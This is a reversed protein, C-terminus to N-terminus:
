CQSQDLSQRRFASPSNRGFLGYYACSLVVAMGMIGFMASYGLHRAFFGSILGGLGIGLDFACLFTASAAGRHDPAVIRMAMAQMAPTVMGFGLGYVLAALYFIYLKNAGALLLFAGLVCGSGLYLMPAEGRRDAIRPLLVRAVATAAALLFFFLGATHLSNQEMYLAAFSNLAGHPLLFLFMTLSAAFSQPYFLDRFAFRSRKLTQEFVISRNARLVLLLALDALVVLASIFFVAQCSSGYMLELAIAPSVAIAVTAAVTYLGLGQGLREAPIHGIANASLSTAAAAWALGQAVRLLSLLVLSATFGYLLFILSMAGLAILLIASRDKHDLIWGTAMRMMLSAVSFLATLLGVMVEDGGQYTIYFPFVALVGHHAVHTIFNLLVFILFSRTFLTATEAAPNNRNM